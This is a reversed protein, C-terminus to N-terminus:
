APTRNSSSANVEGIATLADIEKRLKRVEEEHANILDEPTTLYVVKAAFKYLDFKMGAFRPNEAILEDIATEIRDTLPRSIEM